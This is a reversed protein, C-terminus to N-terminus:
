PRYRPRRFRRSPLLRRSSHDCRWIPASRDIHVRWPHDSAWQVTRCRIAVARDLDCHLRWLIRRPVFCFPDDCPQWTRRGDDQRTCLWRWFHDPQDPFASMNAARVNLLHNPNATHYAIGRGVDPRREILTVDLDDTRYRLLHCALLVGSAGGGIIIVQRRD